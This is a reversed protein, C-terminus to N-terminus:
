FGQDHVSIHSSFSEFLSLIWALIIRLWSRLFSVLTFIISVLLGTPSYDHGIGYRDPYSALKILSLIFRFMSSLFLSCISHM